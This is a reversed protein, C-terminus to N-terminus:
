AYYAHRWQNIMAEQRPTYAQGRSQSRMSSLFSHWRQVYHQQEDTFQKDLAVANAHQFKKYHDYSMHLAKATQKDENVAAGFAQKPHTVAYGAWTTTGYLTTQYLTNLCGQTSNAVSTALTTDSIGSAVFKSVAAIGPMALQGIGGALEGLLAGKGADDGLAFKRCRKPYPYIIKMPVSFTPVFANLSSALRFCGILKSWM